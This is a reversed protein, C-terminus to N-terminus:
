NGRWKDWIKGLEVVLRGSDIRTRYNPDLMEKKILELLDGIVQHCHPHKKLKQIWELVGKKLRPIEGIRTGSEFFTDMQYGWRDVETRAAEFATLGAQGMLLWTIYELYVCGLSFVDAKLTVGAPDRMDLEPAEYTTAVRRERPDSQRRMGFDAM